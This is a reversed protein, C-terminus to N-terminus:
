IIGDSSLESVLNDRADKRAARESTTRRYRSCLESNQHTDESNELVSRWM